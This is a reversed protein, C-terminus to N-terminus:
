EISDPHSKLVPNPDSAIFPTQWSIKTKLNKEHILKGRAGSYGVPVREFKKTNKSTDNVDSLIQPVPLVLFLYSKEWVGL